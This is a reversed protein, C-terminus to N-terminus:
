QDEEQEEQQRATETSEPMAAPVLCHVQSGRQHWVSYVCLSQEYILDYGDKIM